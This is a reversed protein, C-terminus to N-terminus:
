DGQWYSAFKKGTWYVIASSSEAKAIYLADGKLKPPKKGTVGVDVKIKRDHVFWGDLAPFEVDDLWIPASKKGRVVLVRQHKDGSKPVLAIAYDPKKDGDFDARQYFPNVSLDIDHDSLVSAIRENVEPPLNYYAVMETSPADARATGALLFLGMTAAITRM